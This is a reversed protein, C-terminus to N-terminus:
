KPVADSNIKHKTPIRTTINQASNSMKPTIVIGAPPIPSSRMARNKPTKYKAYWITSLM